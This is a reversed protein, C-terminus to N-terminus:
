CFFPQKFHALQVIKFVPEILYTPRIISFELFFDCDFTYIANKLFFYDIYFMKNIEPFTNLM